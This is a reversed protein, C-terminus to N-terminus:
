ISPTSSETFQQNSTLRWIAIIQKRRLRVAVILFDYHILNRIIFDDYVSDQPFTLQCAYLWGTNLQSCFWGGLTNTIATWELWCGLMTWCVRRNATLDCVLTSWKDCTQESGDEPTLIISRTRSIGNSQGTLLLLLVYTPCHSWKPRRHSINFSFLYINLYMIQHSILLVSM